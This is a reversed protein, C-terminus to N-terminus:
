KLKIKSPLGEFIISLAEILVLHYNRLFNRLQIRFCVFFSFAKKTWSLHASFFREFVSLVRKRCCGLSKHRLCVDFDYKRERKTSHLAFASRAKMISPDPLM